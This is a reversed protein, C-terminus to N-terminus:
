LRRRRAWRCAPEFGCSPLMNSASSLYPTTVSVGSQGRALVYYPRMSRDRGLGSGTKLAQGAAINDTIQKGNVDLLYLLEVFPYHTVVCNMAKHQADDTLLLETDGMGTLISSLLEGLADHYQHYREVVALYSMSSM